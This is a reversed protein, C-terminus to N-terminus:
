SNMLFYDSSSILTGLTGLNLMKVACLSEYRSRIQTFVHTWGHLFVVELWLTKTQVQCFDSFDSPFPLFIGLKSESYDLFCDVHHSMLNETRSSDFSKVCSDSDLRTEKMQFYRVAIVPFTHTFFVM